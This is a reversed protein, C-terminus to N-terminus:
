GHRGEANRADAPAPDPPAVTVTGDGNVTVAYGGIPFTVGVDGNAADRDGVLADLADTDVADHLPGLATPPRGTVESLAAVAATSPSTRERDYEFRYTGSAPRHESRHLYESLDIDFEPETSAV